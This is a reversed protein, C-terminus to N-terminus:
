TLARPVRPPWGIECELAARDWQAGDAAADYTSQLFALLAATPDLASRVAEYPLLFEGLSTDFFAGDPSVAAQAFGAPSPYAYAYFYAEDKGNGGPWFGASSVEHSYAERTVTDPLAPFGGPHLPATRGSFRTLAFDFSGWFFHPPTAKGLFGTRFRQFVGDIAVLALWFDRAADPDYTLVDHQDRFPVPDPVENPAHHLDRPVDLRELATMVATHFASVAMSSLAIVEERGDSRRLVLRHGRLDFVAELGGHADQMLGTTLGQANVYFTAHWSHNLWPQLRLRLKGIIQCWMHLALGTSEFRAYPITPWLM